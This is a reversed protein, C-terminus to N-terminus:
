IECSLDLIKYVDKVLNSIHFDWHLDSAFHVGLYKLHDVSGILSDSIQYASVIKRKGFTSLLSVKPVM